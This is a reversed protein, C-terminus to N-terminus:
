LCDNSLARLACHELDNFDLASRERKRRTYEREFTHELRILASLAKVMYDREAERDEMLLTALKGQATTIDKARKRILKILECMPANAAGRPTGKAAAFRAAEFM